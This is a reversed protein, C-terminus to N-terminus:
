KLAEYAMPVALQMATLGVVAAFLFLKNLAILSDVPPPM